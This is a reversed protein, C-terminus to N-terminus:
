IGNREWSDREKQIYEDTDIKGWVDKGLGAMHKVWSKPEPNLLVAKGKPMDTLQAIMKTKKNLNLLKRWDKPITIQGQPSVTLTVITEM